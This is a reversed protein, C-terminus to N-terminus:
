EKFIRIYHHLRNDPRSNPLCGLVMIVLDRSMDGHTHQCSIRFQIRRNEYAATSGTCTNRMYIIEVLDGFNYLTLAPLMCPLASVSARIGGWGVAGRGRKLGHGELERGGSDIDEEPGHGTRTRGRGGRDM